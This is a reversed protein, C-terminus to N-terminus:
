SIIHVFMTSHYLGGIIVLRMRMAHQIGLPVFVRVSTTYYKKEVAVITGSVRRL